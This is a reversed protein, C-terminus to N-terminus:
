SKAIADLGSSSVRTPEYRRLMANKRIAMMDVIDFVMCRLINIRSGPKNKWHVPQYHVDIGLRHMITFIEVDFMGGDIRVLEFVRKAVDRRFVKFGCQSDVVAREFVIVHAIIQLSLGLVRRWKSEDQQYTRVGVVAGTKPDDFQVLMPEIEEIPTALDADSFLVFDGTAALMGRKVAAGKGTNRPQVLLKLQPWQRALAEVAKPTGDSSGDDVVIVEHRPFKDDLYARLTQLTEPLRHTENFAPIVVSLSPTSQSRAEQM